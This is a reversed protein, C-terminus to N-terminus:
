RRSVDQVIAAAHVHANDWYFYGGGAAMNPMKKELLNVLRSLEIRIYTLNVMTEKPIHKTYLVAQSDFFILVLRKEKSAHVQEQVPGRQGKKAYKGSQQKTKPMQLSVALEDMIGIRDLVGLGVFWILKLLENCKDVRDM